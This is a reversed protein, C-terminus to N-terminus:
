SGVAAVILPVQWSRLIGIVRRTSRPVAWYNTDNSYNAMRRRELRIGIARDRYCVILDIQGFEITWWPLDTRKQLDNTCQVTSSSTTASVNGSVQLVAPVDIRQKNGSKVFHLQPTSIINTLGSPLCHKAVAVNEVCPLYLTKVPLM